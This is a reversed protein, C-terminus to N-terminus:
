QQNLHELLKGYELNSFKMHYSDGSQTVSVPQLATCAPGTRVFAIHSFGYTVLFAFVFLLIGAIVWFFSWHSAPLVCLRWLAFCAGALGMFGSLGELESHWYCRTCFWWDWLQTSKYHRDAYVIGIPITRTAPAMCCVCVDPINLENKSTVFEYHKKCSAPNAPIM